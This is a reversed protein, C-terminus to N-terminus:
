RYRSAFWGGLLRRTGRWDYGPIELSFYFLNAILRFM